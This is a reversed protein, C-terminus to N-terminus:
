SRNILTGKMKKTKKVSRSSEGSGAGARKEMNKEMEFCDVALRLNEGGNEWEFCAAVLFLDFLGLILKKLGGFDAPSSITTRVVEMFSRGSLSAKVGAGVQKGQRLFSLLVRCSLSPKFLCWCSVCSEWLGVGDGGKVVRPFSSSVKGVV